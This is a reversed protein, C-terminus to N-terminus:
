FRVILMSQFTIPVKVDVDTSSVPRDQSNHNCATEGRRRRAMRDREKEMILKTTVFTERRSSKYNKDHSHILINLSQLDVLKYAEFNRLNSVRGM